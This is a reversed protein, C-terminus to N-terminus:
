LATDTGMEITHLAGQWWYWTVEFCMYLLLGWEDRQFGRKKRDQIFGAMSYSCHWCGGLFAISGM